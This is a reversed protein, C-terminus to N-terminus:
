APAPSRRDPAAAEPAPPTISAVLAEIAARDETVGLVTATVSEDRAGVVDRVGVRVRAAAVHAGDKPTHPFRLVFRGDDLKGVDDVLRVDNRIHDAVARVLTRVRAPRLEATLCPALEIITISFITGYRQSEALSNSLLQSMFRQNYVKTHEDISLSDELRAFFYKIRGCLEGGVIGVFGYTVTRIIILQLVEAELGIAVVSPLRLALYALTAGIAGALGGKRGWHVAGVLVPLILVQGAFEIWDPRPQLAMIGTGVVSALGVGLVLVEFRSYKM